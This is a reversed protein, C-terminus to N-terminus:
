PWALDTAVQTASLGLLVSHDTHSYDGDVLVRIEVRHAIPDLIWVEDVGHAAYFDLKAYTEDDPSLIEVVIAATPMYLLSQATRHFGLDPVRFDGPEGLNFSGGPELGASAARRHLYTGLRWNLRGNRAHEYPAVHYVGEWVEDRLDLGKRRRDELLADVLPEQAVFLTAM